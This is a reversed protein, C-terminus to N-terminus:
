KGVPNRPWRGVKGPPASVSRSTGPSDNRDPTVKEGVRWALPKLRSLKLVPIVLRM